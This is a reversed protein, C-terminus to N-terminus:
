NFYYSFFRLSRSKRSVSFHRVYPMPKIPEVVQVPATDHSDYGLILTRLKHLKQELHTGNQQDIKSERPKSSRVSVPSYIATSIDSARSPSHFLRSTRKTKSSSKESTNSM